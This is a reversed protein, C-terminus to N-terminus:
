SSYFIEKLFLGNAPATPGAASRDKAALIVGVDSQALKGKGVEFITGVINRVMHRLFGDGTIIFRYKEGAGLTELSADKITRVAGRGNLELNRSGAGEFSSFDHTGQLYGLSNQMAVIDLEEFIHFSYLRKTPLQVPGNSFNYWYTKAKASCRAHFDAEVECAELIRIDTPLMSNLGKVFGQCPINVETCFNAVMGLAHVGADTRGAGHLSPEEGTMISLKDELVGQITKASKQKQWGAYDTGDFALLLKINRKPSM